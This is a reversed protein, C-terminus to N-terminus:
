TKSHLLHGGLRLPACGCLDTEPEGRHVHHTRNWAIKVGPGLSLFNEREEEPVSGSKM